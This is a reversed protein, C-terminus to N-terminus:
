MNKKGSNKKRIEHILQKKTKSHRGKINLDKARELLADKTKNELKRGGGSQPQHNVNSTNSTMNTTITTTSQTSQSPQSSPQQVQNM